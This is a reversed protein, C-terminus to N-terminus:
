VEIDWAEFSGTFAPPLDIRWAAEEVCREIAGGAAGKLSVSPVDVVEDVTTELRVSVRRGAAGCAKAAAALEDSLFGRKDFGLGAGRGITGISGLGIGEGRGGGGEGVGLGETSPRVGPEIALLSTVPSVAHGRMALFMMEKEDLSYLVNSGFVLASWRKGEDEDPLFTKKVHDGWLDGEIAVESVPAVPLRLDEIGEGEDLTETFSLDSDPIGKAHVKFNHLRLPRAWEEYSRKMADADMPAASADATWLVGKTGLAVSAWPHSDDRTLKPEGDHVVGIHLVAGSKVLGQVKAPGLASRTLLDTLLLIRKPTRAPLKALLADAEALADDVRSGNRREVAMTGLDSLAAGVRTFAGYRARVKRDFTLVEVRADPLHAITARAAAVAARTAADSLSRSGDLLVVVHAGRPAESLRPAADVHFRSLAHRRSMPVSALAGGLREPARPAVAIDLGDRDLKVVTGASIPKGDLFLADGPEVSTVRALPRLQRTGMAPLTVHYRGAGYRVPMEYTYEITKPQGPACPFVQLALLGQHRWSLLAPDKPYYGGIGTLERYKAAAAEAEMLEGEFWFPRGDMVGLSRLRTAVAGAPVDLWFMAQDHRPGGNFVTRQATLRAHDRDIQITVVHSREVLKPSRTGAVSDAHAASSTLMAAAATVALIARRRM